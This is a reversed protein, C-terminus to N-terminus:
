GTRLYACMGCANSIESPRPGTSRRRMRPARASHFFPLCGCVWAHVCLRKGGTEIVNGFITPDHLRAPALDNVSRRLHTYAAGKAIPEARETFRYGQGADPRDARTRVRRFCRISLHACTSAGTM